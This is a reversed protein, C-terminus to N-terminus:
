CDAAGSQGVAAAAAAVAPATKAVAATAATEEVAAAPDVQRALEAALELKSQAAAYPQTATLQRM